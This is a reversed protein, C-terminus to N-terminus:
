NIKIEKKIKAREEMDPWRIIDGKMSLIAKKMRNVFNEVTGRGIGFFSGVKISNAEVGESEM